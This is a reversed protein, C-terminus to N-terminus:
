NTENKNVNNIKKLDVKIINITQPIKNLQKAIEVCNYGYSLREVVQTILDNSYKSSVLGLKKFEEKYNRM